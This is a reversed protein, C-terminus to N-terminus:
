GGDRLQLRARAAAGGPDLQLQGVRTAPRAQPVSIVVLVNVPTTRRGVDLGPVLKDAFVEPGLTFM